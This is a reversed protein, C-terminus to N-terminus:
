SNTSSTWDARAELKHSSVTGLNTMGYDKLIQDGFKTNFSKAKSEDKFYANFSKKSTAIAVRYNMESMKTITGVAGNKADVVKLEPAKVGEKRVDNEDDYFTAVDKWSDLKGSISSNTNVTKFSNGEVVAKDICASYDRGQNFYLTANGDVDADFYDPEKIYIEAGDVVGLEVNFANNQFLVDGSEINFANGIVDFKSDTVNLDVYGAIYSGSKITAKNINIVPLKSGDSYTVTENNYTYYGKDRIDSSVYFGEKTADTGSFNIEVNRAYLIADGFADGKYNNATFDSNGDSSGGKYTKEVYADNSVSLIQEPNALIGISKYDGELTVSSGVDLKGASGLLKSRTVVSDTSNFAYYQGYVQFLTDDSGIVKGEGTLKLKGHVDFRKSTYGESTKTENALRLDINHGNLDITIDKDGAITVFDTESLDSASLDSNLVLTGKSLSSLATKFDAYGKGTASDYLKASSSTDPDLEYSLNSVMIYGRLDAFKFIFGTFNDFTSSAWYTTNDYAIKITHWSGDNELKDAVGYYNKVESGNVTKTTQFQVLSKWGTSPESAGVVGNWTGTGWNQYCYDFSVSKIRKADTSFRFEACGDNSTPNTAAGKKGSASFYVATKGSDKVFWPTSTGEKDKVGNAGQDVYKFKGTNVNAIEDGSSIDSAEAKTLAPIEIESYQLLTKRDTLSYRAGNPGSDKCCKTCNWYPKFGTSFAEAGDSEKYTGPAWFPNEKGDTDLTGHNAHPNTETALRLSGGGSGNAAGIATIGGLALLGALSVVILKKNM